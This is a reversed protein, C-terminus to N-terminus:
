KTEEEKDPYPCWNPIPTKKNLRDAIKRHPTVAECISRQKVRYPAKSPSRECKPCDLCYKVEHPVMKSM